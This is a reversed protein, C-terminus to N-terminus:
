LDSRKYKWRKHSWLWYEPKERIMQELVEVHKQTIEYPQTSSPDDFLKVLEVQYYGRKVKKMKAFCVVQNTKRAIKEPGLYIPAEQNLFNTWYQIENKMPRQDSLLALLFPKKEHLAQAVERYTRHMPVPITGFRSRSKIMLNNYTENNLPKYVALTKHKDVLPFGIFMEWNAYHGMICVISKGQEYLDNFLKINPYTVRRMMEDRSMGLIKVNEVFVDCLHKYFNKAIRIIEKEEKEPFAHHLNDLVVKKRYRVVYYILPYLGDSVIYLLRLPLLALLWNFAYLIYSGLNRM